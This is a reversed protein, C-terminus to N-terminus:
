AKGGSNFSKGRCRLARGPTYELLVKHGRILFIKEAITKQPILGVM